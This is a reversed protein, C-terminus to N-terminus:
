LKLKELETLKDEIIQHLRRLEQQLYSEPATKAKFWLGKDEAQINVIVLINDTAEKVDELTKHNMKDLGMKIAKELDEGPYEEMSIALSGTILKVSDRYEKAKSM